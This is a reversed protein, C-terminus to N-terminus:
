GFFLKRQKPDVDKKKEGVRPRKNASGQSNGRKPIFVGDSDKGSGGEQVVERITKRSLCADIHENFDKEVKAQPRQCIPCDWWEEETEEESKRDKKPTPNPVILKGHLRRPDHQIQSNAIEPDPDLNLDDQQSLHEIEDMEAQRERRVQDEFEEEPWVEWEGNGEEVDVAKRKNSGGSEPVVNPTDPSSDKTSKRKFGLFVL